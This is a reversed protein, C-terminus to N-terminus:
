YDSVRRRYRSYDNEPGYPNYGAMANGMYQGTNTQGGLWQGTPSQTMSPNQANQMVMNGQPATAQTGPVPGGGGGGGGAAGASGGAGSIKQGQALGMAAGSMIDAMMNPKAISQGETKRWPSYRTKLAEIKMNHRYDNQSEENAAKGMAAGVLAAIAAVAAPGPM